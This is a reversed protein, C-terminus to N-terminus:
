LLVFNDSKKEWGAYGQEFNSISVGSCHTFYTLALLLSILHWQRWQPTKITLELCIECMTRFNRNNVKFLYIDVSNHICMSCAFVSSKLTHKTMKLMICWLIIQYSQVDIQRNSRCASYYPINGAKLKSFKSDGTTTDLATILFELCIVIFSMRIFITRLPLAGRISILM